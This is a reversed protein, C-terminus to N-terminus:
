NYSIHADQPNTQSHNQSNVIMETGPDSVNHFEHEQGINHQSM